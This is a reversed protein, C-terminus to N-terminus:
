GKFGMANRPDHVFFYGGVPQGLHKEFLRLKGKTRHSSLAGIMLPLGLREAASKAFKILASANHTKRFQPRVYSFLEEVFIDDSNWFSAFRLFILAEIEGPMGIVGILSQDRNIAKMIAAEAKPYSIAGHGNEAHLEEGLAIIQPYDAVSAYRVVPPQVTAIEHVPLTTM